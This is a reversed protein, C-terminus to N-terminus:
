RLAIMATSSSVYSEADRASFPFVLTIIASWVLNLEDSRLVAAAYVDYVM